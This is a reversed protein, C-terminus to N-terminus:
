HWPNKTVKEWDRIGKIKIDEMSLYNNQLWEGYSRTLTSEDDGCFFSHTGNPPNSPTDNISMWPDATPDGGQELTMQNVEQISTDNYGEIYEGVKKEIRFGSLGEMVTVTKLYKKMEPSKLGLQDFGKEKEEEGYNDYLGLFIDNVFKDSYLYGDNMISWVQEITLEPVEFKKREFYRFLELSYYPSDFM